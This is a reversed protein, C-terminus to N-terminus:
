LKITRHTTASEPTTGGMRTQVTIRALTGAPVARGLPIRITNRKAKALVFPAAKTLIARGHRTLKVGLEIAASQLDVGRTTLRVALVKGSLKAAAVRAGAVRARNHLKVRHHHGAGTFTATVTTSELNPWSSPTLTLQQGATLKIPGTGFSQGPTHPGESSLVISFTGGVTTTLTTSTGSLKVTAHTKTVPGTVTLVRETQGAAGSILSISGGSSPAAGAAPAVGFTDHAPDFTTVDEGHGSDISAALSPTYWAASVQGDDNALTEHWNGEPGLIESIGRVGPTSSSTSASTADTQPIVTVDGSTSSELDVPAGSPETAAVVSTNGGVTNTVGAAQLLHLSGTLRSIPVVYMSSDPFGALDFEPFSWTGNAAFVVNSSSLAEAHSSGSGEGGAAYPDNSNYTYITFDGPPNSASTDEVAFGLIAHGHAGPGAPGGTWRISVIAPSNWPDSGLAARVESASQFDENLKISLDEDSFQKWWDSQIESQATGRAVVHYPDVGSVLPSGLSARQGTFYAFGWCFGDPNNHASYFTEYRPLLIPQGNAATGSTMPTTFADVFQQRPTYGGYNPFSLGFSNRFSDVSQGALTAEHGELKLTVTGTVAGWPVTVNATSGDAAVDSVMVPTQDAAGWSLQMGTKFGCGHLVAQSGIRFGDTHNVTSSVSDLGIPMGNVCATFSGTSPQFNADGVYSATIQASGTGSAPPTYTDSCAAGGSVPSLTCSSSGLSGVNATFQVAGTPTQVSGDGTSDTVKATCTLSKDDPSASAPICGLATASTRSAAKLLFGVENGTSIQAAIGIVDGNDNIGLADTLILDSNAPLLSNLDVVTGNPELLGAAPIQQGDYTSAISGVVDHEANVGNYAILGNIPTETGTPLRLYHQDTSSSGTYGLVTGDSALDNQDLSGFDGTLLHLGSYSPTLNIETGSGGPSAGSWLYYNDTGTGTQSDYNYVEGLIASGNPTIADAWTNGAETLDGDGVVTLSGNHDIWGRTGITDPPDVSTYDPASGVIDGSNDVDSAVSFDSDAPTPTLSIQTASTATPSSWYVAHDESSDSTSGVIVGNNSIEVAESSTTGMAVPLDTLTGNVWVAAQSSGSQDTGEDDGVVQDQNNLGTPLLPGLNFVAAARASSAYSLMAAAVAAAACLTRLRIRIPLGM